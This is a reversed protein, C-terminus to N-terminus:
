QSCCSTTNNALFFVTNSKLKLWTFNQKTYRKIAYKPIPKNIDWQEQKETFAGLRSILNELTLKSPKWYYKLNNTEAM